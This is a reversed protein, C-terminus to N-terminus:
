NEKIIKGKNYIVTHKVDGDETYDKWAGDQISCLGREKLRTWNGTPNHVYQGTTKVIGCPWYNIYSGIFCSNYKLGEYLLQNDKDYNKEWYVKNSFYVPPMKGNNVTKVTDVLKAHQSFGQQSLFFFLLLISINKKM